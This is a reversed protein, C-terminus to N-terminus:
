KDHSAEPKYADLYRYHEHLRQIIQLLRLPLDHIAIVDPLRRLIAIAMPGVIGFALLIGHIRNIAATRETV